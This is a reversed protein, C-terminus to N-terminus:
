NNLVKPWRFTLRAGGEKSRPQLDIAGSLSHIAQRAVALGMGLHGEKTTSGIGFARDMGTPPGRGEDLVAVWYDRETEGWNIVISPLSSDNAARKTAEVANRIANQLVLGVLQEDGAVLLPTPGPLEIAVDDDAVEGSATRQILQSLDFESFSPASAASNLEDIAHLLAKLHDIRAKTDSDEFDDIEQKAFYSLSGIVPEIEHLLQGTTHEVAEAYIDESAEKLSATQQEAPDEATDEEEVAGTARDVAQRLANRVWVVSEDALARKLRDADSSGARRSFYRAARLREYQDSSRLKEWATEPNMTSGPATQSANMM